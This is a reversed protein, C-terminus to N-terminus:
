LEVHGQQNITYDRIAHSYIARFVKTETTKLLNTTPWYICNKPHFIWSYKYKKAIGYLARNEM